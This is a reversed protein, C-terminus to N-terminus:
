VQGGIAVISVYSALFNSFECGSDGKVLPLANACHALALDHPSECIKKRQYEKSLFIM